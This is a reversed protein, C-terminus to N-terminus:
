PMAPFGALKRAALVENGACDQLVKLCQQEPLGTQEVLKECTPTLIDWDWSVSCQGGMWGGNALFEVAEGVTSECVHLALLCARAGFGFAADMQAAVQEVEVENSLDVTTDRTISM